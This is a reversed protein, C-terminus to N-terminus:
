RPDDVLDDSLDAEKLILRASHEVKFRTAHEPEVPVFDAGMPGIVDSGTALVLDSVPALKQTYYGHLHIVGKQKGSRVAFLACKPADFRAVTTGGDRLEALWRSSPDIVMGCRKCREERKCAASTVLPISALLSILAARRDITANAKIV